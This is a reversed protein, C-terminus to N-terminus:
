TRRALSTSQAASSTPRSRPESSRRTDATPAASSASGIRTPTARPSSGAPRRRDPRRADQSGMRRRRRERVGQRVRDVRSLEGPRLPLRPKCAVPGRSRFGLHRSVVARRAREPSRAPGVAGRRGPLDPLRPRRTRGKGHVLVAGHRRARVTLSCASARVPLNLARVGPRLRPLPDPRRGDLLRRALDPRCRRPGCARPRWSRPPPSPRPRRRSGSRARPLGDAGAARVRDASREHRSPTARRRRRLRSGRRGRDRVRRRLRALRAPEHQRRGVLSRRPPSRGRLLGASPHDACGGPGSRPDDALARGSHRARPCVPRRGRRPAVAARVEFSEDTVFGVFGPNEVIRTLEGSSLELAYVDHLEPRVRNLGVLIRGPFDKDVHEVRTQVGEFPTLDRSDGTALDVDYLRWNEDGGRDQLYLIRRNDPGWFFQRIGRDTDDTVVRDDDHGVTRVWM